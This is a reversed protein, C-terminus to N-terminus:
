FLVKLLLRSWRTHVANGMVTASKIFAQAVAQGVADMMKNERQAETLPQFSPLNFKKIVEGSRNVSYSKLCERKFREVLEEYEKRQEEKLKDEPVLIQNEENVASKDAIDVMNFSEHGMLRALLHISAFILVSSDSPLHEGLMSLLGLM